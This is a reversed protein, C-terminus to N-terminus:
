QKFFDLYQEVASEFDIGGSLEMVTCNKLVQVYKEESFDLKKDKPPLFFLGPSKIFARLLDRREDVNIVKLEPKVKQDLYWNLIVLGHMPGSLKFKNPGFCQDIFVDYKQEVKWLEEKSLKSFHEKEEPSLIKQLHPNNLATGPNIRPLKAVGFMKVRNGEQEILLRDNSVFTAGKSMLHLALTSKGMGSFGAMALGKGQWLVAAAHGLLCGSLLKKEIYRNNIFNIVQNLNALCPGIALHEGQGFLFVMGTLRKRVIRGDVLDVYEEKIKTKGPDPQKLTFEFDFDPSSAEHVTIVIDPESLGDQIFPRFYDRLGTLIAQQNSRIEFSTENFVLRLSFEAPYERRFKDILELVSAM